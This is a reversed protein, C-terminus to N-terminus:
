VSFQKHWFCLFYRLLDLFPFVYFVYFFISCCTLFLFYLLFVSPFVFFTFLFYRLLDLIPFPSSISFFCLSFVASNETKNEASNVVFCPFQWNVTFWTQNNNQVTSYWSFEFCTANTKVGVGWLFNFIFVFNKFILSFNINLSTHTQLTTQIDIHFSPWSRNRHCM